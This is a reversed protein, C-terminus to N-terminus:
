RAYRLGLVYTKPVLVEHMLYSAALYYTTSAIGDGGKVMDYEMLVFRGWPSAGDPGRMPGLRYAEM